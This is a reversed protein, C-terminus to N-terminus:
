KMESLLSLALSLNADLSIIKGEIMLRKAVPSNIPGLPRGRNIVASAMERNEEGTCWELNELRNDTTIMNKHNVEMTECEPIPCFTMMVMRHVFRTMSGAGLRVQCREKKTIYQKRILGTGSLRVRGMNSVEWRDDEVWTKWIEM